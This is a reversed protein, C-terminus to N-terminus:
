PMVGPALLSDLVASYHSLTQEVLGLNHAGQSGDHRIKELGSAVRDALARDKESLDLGQVTTLRGSVTDILQTIETQWDVLLDEYDLDHCESCTRATAKEVSQRTGTHCSLCELGAEYMVDPESEVAFGATGEFVSAQIGHCRACEIGEQTHHCSLCENRTIVLEGHTRMNSHCQSC